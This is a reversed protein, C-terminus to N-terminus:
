EISATSLVVMGRAQDVAHDLLASKGIGPEGRVVLTGSEGARARDLLEDILATERDRGVLGDAIGPAPRGPPFRDEPELPSPEPTGVETFSMQRGVELSRTGGWLPYDRVMVRHGAIRGAVDRIGCDGASACGRIPHSGLHFWSSPARAGPGEGG